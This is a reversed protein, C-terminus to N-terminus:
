LNLKWLLLPYVCGCGENHGYKENDCILFSGCASFVSCLCSYFIFNNFSAPLCICNTWELTWFWCLLGVLCLCLILLCLALDFSCFCLFFYFDLFLPAGFVTLVFCSVCLCSDPLSFLSSAASFITFSYVLLYCTHPLSCVPSQNASPYQLPRSGAFSCFDPPPKWKWYIWWLLVRNSM